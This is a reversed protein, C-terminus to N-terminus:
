HLKPNQMGGAQLRPTPGHMKKQVSLAYETRRIQADEPSLETNSPGTLEASYQVPNMTAIRCEEM